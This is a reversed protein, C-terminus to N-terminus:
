HVILLKHNINDSNHCLKLIYSGNALVIGLKASGERFVLYDSLIIKGSLDIIQYLVKENAFPAYNITFVGNNPNPKLVFNTNTNKDSKVNKIATAGAHAVRASSANPLECHTVLANYDQHVTNSLSEFQYVVSGNIEPCLRALSDILLTDELALTENLFKDYLIYFHKKLEENDITTTMGNLIARAELYDKNTLKSEVETFKGINENETATYFSEITASLDVFDPNAAIKRYTEDKINFNLVDVDVTPSYIVETNIM